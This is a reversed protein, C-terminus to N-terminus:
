LVQAQLVLVGGGVLLAPVLIGLVRSGVGWGGIAVVMVGKTVTNAAAALLLGEVATQSDLEGQSLRAISLTIADVDTTGALLASLYLGESGLWQQAQDTLVLVAVFLAAFKLAEGIRFPNKVSLEGAETSERGHRWYFLASLGGSTVTCAVLPGALQPLLGPAVIAVEALQRPFMITSALAIGLAAVPALEPTQKVRGSFSLAVATSSAMGGVAGTLVMGKSAGLARTAVYGVFGITAILAVLVGVEFPVVAPLQEIPERPLLPLVLLFLAGLKGTAYLDERSLAEAFRHLPQRLSLLGMLCVATAASVLWRTEAALGELPAAAVLGTSFIALGALETTLGHRTGRWADMLGMGLLALGVLALLVLAPGWGATPVLVGGAAGLLGLIGFTRVGGFRQKDQERQDQERELGVLLGCALAVALSAGPEFWTAQTLSELM